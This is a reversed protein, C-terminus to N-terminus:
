FWSTLSKLVKSAVKGPVALAKGAIPVHELSNTVMDNVKMSVTFPSKAATALASGVVPIHQLQGTPTLYSKARAVIGEPPPPPPNSPVQGSTPTIGPSRQITM